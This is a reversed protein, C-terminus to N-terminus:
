EDFEAADEAAAAQEALLKRKADVMEMWKAVLVQPDSSLDVGEQRVERGDDLFVAAIGKAGPRLELRQDGAELCLSTGLWMLHVKVRRAFGARTAVGMLAKTYAGNKLKEAWPAATISRAREADRKHGEDAGGQEQSELAKLNNELNDLFSM